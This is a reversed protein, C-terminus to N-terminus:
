VYTVAGAAPAADCPVRPAHRPQVVHYAHRRTQRRSLQLAQLPRTRVHHRRTALRQRRLLQLLQGHANATILCPARPRRSLPTGASRAATGGVTPADIHQTPAPTPACPSPPPPSSRGRRRPPTTYRVCRQGVTPQPAPAARHTTDTGGPRDTRTNTHELNRTRLRPRAPPTRHQRHHSPQGPMGLAPRRRSVGVVFVLRTGHARALTPRPLAASGRATTDAVGGRGDNRRKNSRRDRVDPAHGASGSAATLPGGTRASTMTTTASSSLSTRHRLLRTALAARAHECQAATGGTRLRSGPHCHWHRAGRLRAMIAHSTGRRHPPNQAAFRNWKLGSRSVPRVGACVRARVRVCADARVCACVCV